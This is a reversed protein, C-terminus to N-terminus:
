LKARSGFSQPSSHKSTKRKWLHFGNMLLSTAKSFNVIIQIVLSYVISPYIHLGKDFVHVKHEKWVYLWIHCVVIDKDDFFVMGNDDRRWQPKLKSSAVM